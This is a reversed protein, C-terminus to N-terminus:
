NNGVILKAVDRWTVAVMLIMLLVFGITNTINEIKPSIRRRIISEIIVFLIRGGDLAPFPILNIVGLNVSIIATVMLLYTFGLEAANGVIGAIGVPGAVDKFDPHGAVINAIFHYLGVCTQKILNIVYEFGEFIAGFFPLRIDGVTDMSIGIAFKGEVVGQVPVIGLISKHGDRMIEIAVPKTGQSSIVSQIESINQLSKHLDGSTTLRGREANMATTEVYSIVDGEKIGAKAAPSGPLVYTVIIRENKFRDAYNEFSSTSTTFGSMFVISYLLWAFIFNCLVGSALILVQQWKKKNVFSRASDKGSISEEDPNEGHIKVYGGFPIANVGYETEGKKWAFIKPGFGLKFADVRVGCMRAAIFHGLEHVFVLAALVILFIIITM